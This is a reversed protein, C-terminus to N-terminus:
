RSEIGGDNNGRFISDFQDKYMTVIHQHYREGGCIFDKVEKDTVKRDDFVAMMQISYPGIHDTYEVAMIHEQKQLKPLVQSLARACIGTDTTEGDNEHNKFFRELTEVPHKKLKELLGAAKDSM